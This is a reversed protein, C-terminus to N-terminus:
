TWHFVQVVVDEDEDFLLVSGATGEDCFNVTDLEGLFRLERGTLEKSTKGYNWNANPWIGSLDSYKLLDAETIEGNSFRDRSNGSYRTEFPDNEEAPPTGALPLVSLYKGDSDRRFAYWNDPYSSDGVVEAINGDVLMRPRLFHITGVGGDSLRGLQATALPVFFNTENGAFVSDERPFFTWNSIM